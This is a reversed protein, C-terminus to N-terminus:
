AVHQWTRRHVADRATAHSIGYREALEEWAMGSAHALRLEVVLAATLIASPNREGRQNTGARCRGKADRDRANDLDTGLFLHAPNVCPPNDCRHLVCSRGASLTPISGNAIRWSVRHAAELADRRYWFSGYGQKNKSAKWLWCADDGGSRDVKGWFRAITKEDM